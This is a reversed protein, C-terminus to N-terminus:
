SAFTNDLQSKQSRIKKPIGLRHRRDSLSVIGGVFMMICGIWLLNILPKYYLRTSFKDSSIEKEGIVAYFDGLNKPLIAAETTVMPPDKYSRTEPTLTSILKDDKKLFFEAVLSEYNPGKSLKTGNFIFQYGAVEVNDGKSMVQLKETEFATSITIGLIAIGMGSHALAGGISSRPLNIIRKFSDKNFKKLIKTRQTIEYFSGLVLWLGLMVGLVALPSIKWSFYLTILGALVTIVIATKIRSLIGSLDSRKWSLMPAFAMLIILPTMIPIFTANFYPPGVSVKENTVADLFLPYLTGLLVTTTAAMLLLNNLVLASERSIPTFLGGGKLKPARWAYLSLSGGIALILFLLIFIGRGPDTAFSHVSNLVGSRVIFTGLLSFSFALIALLVCWSKLTDRKEVVISSHILATGILWPMFSANEVPDWFWWGGWGLEYYAWWSGMAIGLTLFSWAALSWPRVWKAWAADIKGEILAAVAFSFAVSFGVYGLYLFPPHFALGPDQLLPNLGNGNIPTPTIRAFPNSLFILLLLFGVGIAGQISIVRSKLSPPINNGFFAIAAGFLSLIMVWLLLSGEHNGWVGSIKYLLPKDSHSNQWVNLVSFDSIIYLQTLFILAFFILVFQLIASYNGFNMLAQNNKTAGIMPIVTQFIATILAIIILFQGIEATM